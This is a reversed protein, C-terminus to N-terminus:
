QAARVKISINLNGSADTQNPISKSVIRPIPALAEDSFGSGGYIGVDTGDTGANKGTMGDKIHYDGDIKGTGNVFIANLEENSAFGTALDAVGLNNQFLCSSKDITKTEWGAWTSGYFINNLFTSNSITIISLIGLIQMGGSNLFVNNEVIGGNISQIDDGIINNTLAIPGLSQIGGGGFKISVLSARIINQNIIINTSAGWDKGMSLNQISCFRLLFNKVPSNHALRVEGTLYVGMLSSGESGQDYHFNGGVLTSGGQIKTKYGVGIITLKKTIKVTDNITLNGSPLYITAGALAGLIAKDLNNYTTVNGDAAQVAIEQAYSVTSLVSITFFLIILKKM